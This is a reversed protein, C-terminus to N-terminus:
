GFTQNKKSFKRELGWFVTSSLAWLFTCKEPNVAWSSSYNLVIKKWMGSLGVHSSICNQKQDVTCLQGMKAEKLWSALYLSIYNWDKSDM